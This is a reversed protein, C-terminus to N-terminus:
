SGRAIPADGSGRSAGRAEAEELRREVEDLARAAQERERDLDQELALIEAAAQEESQRRAEDVARELRDDEHRDSM